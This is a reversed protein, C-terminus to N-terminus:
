DDQRVGGDVSLHFTKGSFGKPIRVKVSCDKPVGKLSAHFEGDKIKWEVDIVGYCTPVSGQAQSLGGAHPAFVLPARPKDVRIGLHHRSLWPTPAASWSHCYSRPRADWFGNRFTGARQWEEWFTTAGKEIMKGWKKRIFAIAEEGRDAVALAELLYYAFFPQVQTLSKDKLAGELAKTTMSSDIGLLTALAQIHQSFHPAEKGMLETDAFLGRKEDWFASPFKAIIKEALGNWRKEAEKEGLFEAM